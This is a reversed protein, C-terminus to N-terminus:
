LQKEQLFAAVAGWRENIHEQLKELIETERANARTFDEFQGSKNACWETIYTETVELYALYDKFNSVSTGLQELIQETSTILANLRAIKDSLSRKQESLHNSLADWDEASKNEASQAADRSSNLADSINKLLDLIKVVQEYNLKTAMETLSVILPKFLTAHRANNKLSEQVKNYRERIQSFSVGHILHKILKSAEDLAVAAENQEFDQDVWVTHESERQATGSELATVTEDLDTATQGLDRKAQDKIELNSAIANEMSNISTRVTNLEDALGGITEDCFIQETNNLDESIQRKNNL